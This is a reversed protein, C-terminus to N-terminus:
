KGLHFTKIPYLLEMWEMWSWDKGKRMGKTYVYNCLLCKSVIVKQTCKLAALMPLQGICDYHFHCKPLLMSIYHSITFSKPIIFSLNRGFNALYTFCHTTNLPFLANLINDTMLSLAKIQCM